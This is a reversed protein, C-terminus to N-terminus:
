FPGNHDGLLSDVFNKRHLYYHYSDGKIFELCRDFKEDGITDRLIGMIHLDDITSKVLLEKSSTKNYERLFGVIQEDTGSEYLNVPFEISREEPEYDDYHYFGSFHVIINGNEALDVNADATWSDCGDEDNVELFLKLLHNNRDTVSKKVEFYANLM